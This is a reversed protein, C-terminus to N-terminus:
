LSNPSIDSVLKRIAQRLEDGYQNIESKIKNQGEELANIRDELQGIYEFIDSLVADFVSGLTQVAEENQQLTITPTEGPVIEEEGSSKIPQNNEVPKGQTLLWNMAHSNTEGNKRM